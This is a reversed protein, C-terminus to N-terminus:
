ARRDVDGLTAGRRGTVPEAHGSLVLLWALRSSVDYVEGPQYRRLDYEDMEGAQPLSKIRVAMTFGSTRFETM